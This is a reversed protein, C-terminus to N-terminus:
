ITGTNRAYLYGQKTHQKKVRIEFGNDTLYSKLDGIGENLWKEEYFEHYEMSIRGIRDLYERSTNFLIEYETGEADLKLFDCFEIKNEEFVDELTVCDVEVFDESETYMNNESYYPENIYLRAKRREGLVGLEFTKVNELRNLRVNEKLLKFSGPYPEYAYVFGKKAISAAYVTFSGIHAGVDIVTYGSKIEFGEPNYAEARCSELIMIEDSSGSDADAPTHRFLYLKLKGPNFVAKIPYDM